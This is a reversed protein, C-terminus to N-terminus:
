NCIHINITDSNNITQLIGQAAINYSIGKLLSIM